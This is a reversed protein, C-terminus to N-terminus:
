ATLPALVRLRSGEPDFIDLIIRAVRDNPRTEGLAMLEASLREGRDLVDYLHNPCPMEFHEDLDLEDIRRALAAPLEDLTPYTVFDTMGIVLPNDRGAVMSRCDDKYIVIPKGYTWAMAMEVMAGEDPVRGNLNCVLSGCGLIVQYTDLAFVAEHLLQGVTVANYGHNVLYPQVQAFEMGDRHPVFPEFGAASLCEAIEVMQRREGENFLAGACYVRRLYQHPKVNTTRSEPM